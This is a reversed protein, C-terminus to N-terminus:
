FWLGKIEMDGERYADRSHTKVYPNYFLTIISRFHGPYFSSM